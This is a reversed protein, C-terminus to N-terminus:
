VVENDVRKEDQGLEEMAVVYVTTAAQGISSGIGFNRYGKRNGDIVVINVCYRASEDREPDYVVSYKWGRLRLAQIILRDFIPNVVIKAYQPPICEDVIDAAALMESVLGPDVKKLRAVNISDDYVAM